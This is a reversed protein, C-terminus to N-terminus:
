LGSLEVLSWNNSGKYEVTCDYHNRLKAGFSNEADVHGKVRYRNQTITETNTESLSSFDASSPAKLRKKIFEKCMMRATSADGTQSSSEPLMSGIIAMLIFLGFIVGACIGIISLCGMNGSKDPAKDQITQAEAPKENKKYVFGCHPCFEAQDSIQKKCENCEILAM